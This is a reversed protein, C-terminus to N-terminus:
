DTHSSQYGLDRMRERHAAIERRENANKQASTLRKASTQVTEQLGTRGLAEPVELGAAEPSIPLMGAEEPTMFGMDHAADWSIGDRIEGIQHMSRNEKAVQVLLEPTVKQTM